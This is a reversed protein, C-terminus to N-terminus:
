GNFKEGSQSDITYKEMIAEGDEYMVVQWLNEDHEKEVLWAENEFDIGHKDCLVNLEAIFAEYQDRSKM